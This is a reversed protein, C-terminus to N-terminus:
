SVPAPVRGPVDVGPEPSEMRQSAPQASSVMVSQRSHQGNGASPQGEAMKIEWDSNALFRQDNYLSMPVLSARGGSVLEPHSTSKKSGDPMPIRQTEDIMENEMEETQTQWFAKNKALNDTLEAVPPLVRCIEVFMPMVLIDIFGIQAKAINTSRRDMLQSVPLDLEKEKDGQLFFETMVRCVWEACLPLPKAANSIDCAHLVLKMMLLKDEAHDFVLFEETSLKTKVQAVKAFHQAMDTALVVEIIESRLKAASESSINMFINYSETQMLSFAASAHHNELVSHDNYRVAFMSQTRIQFVNNTGPHEVDHVAAGLALSLQCSDELKCVEMLGGSTCFWLAGHTVDAAHIANHYPNQKPYGSEVAAAFRDLATSDLHLEELMGHHQFAFGLFVSLPKGRTLENLKFVDFDWSSTTKMLEALEGSLDSVLGKLEGNAVSKSPKLSTRSGMAGLASFQGTWANAEKANPDEASMFPVDYLTGSAVNKIAMEVQQRIARSLRREFRLEHLLELVQEAPTVFANRPKTRAKVYRGARTFGEMIRHFVALLRLIGCAERVHAAQDFPDGEVMVEFATFVLSTTMVCADFFNFVDLIFSPGFTATKLFIEILFFSCLVFDVWALVTFLEHQSDYYGVDCARSPLVAQLFLVVSYGLLFVTVTVEFVISQLVYAFRDRIWTSPTLFGALEEFDIHHKGGLGGAVSAVGPLLGNSTMDMAAM